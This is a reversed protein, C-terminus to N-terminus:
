CTGLLQQQGGFFFTPPFINPGLGGYAMQKRELRPPPPPPVIIINPNEIQSSFTPNQQVHRTGPFKRGWIERPILRAHFKAGKIRSPHWLNPMSIGWYVGGGGFFFSVFLYCKSAVCCLPVLYTSGFCAM